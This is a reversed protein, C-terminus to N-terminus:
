SESKSTWDKNKIVKNINKYNTILGMQIIKEDFGSINKLVTRNM